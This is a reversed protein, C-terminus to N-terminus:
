YSPRIVVIVDFRGLVIGNSRERGISRNIYPGVKGRDHLASQDNVLGITQEGRRVGGWRWNRDRTQAVRFIGMWDVM